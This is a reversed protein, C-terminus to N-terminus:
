LTLTIDVKIVGQKQNLAAKPEVELNRSIRSYLGNVLKLVDAPHGGVSIELQGMTSSSRM